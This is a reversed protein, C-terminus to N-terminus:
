CAHSASASMTDVMTIVEERADNAEQFTAYWMPIFPPDQPRRQEHNLTLSGYGHLPEGSLVDYGYQTLLIEPVIMGSGPVPLVIPPLEADAWQQLNLLTRIHEQAESPSTFILVEGAFEAGLHLDAPLKDLQRWQEFQMVGEGLEVIAYRKLTAFQEYAVEWEYVNLIETAFQSWITVLVREELLAEIRHIYKKAYHRVDEFPVETGEITAHEQQDKGTWLRVTGIVSHGRSVGFQQNGFVRGFETSQQDRVYDFSQVEILHEIFRQHEDGDKKVVEFEAPDPTPTDLAQYSINIVHLARKIDKSAYGHTQCWESFTTGQRLKSLAYGKKTRKGFLRIASAVINYRTLHDSGLVVLEDNNKDWKNRYTLFFLEPAAFATCIIRLLDHDDKDQASLAMEGWCTPMPLRILRKGLETLQPINDQFTIAGRFVLRNFTREYAPADLGGILDLDQAYIGLDASTLALIELNGDLVFSPTATTITTPNLKRDTLIHVRGNKARGRVRGIMQVLTIDDLTNQSLRPYGNVITTRFQQDCIVVTDLGPINLSSAGAATMFLLFPREAGELFPQLVSSESGGHYFSVTLGETSSFKKALLEADNRSSVFVAAGREEAVLTPCLETLYSNLQRTPGFTITAEREPDTAAYEIVTPTELYTAYVDKNVTASMWIFTCGVRKAVALALELHESTQHVEDCILLDDETLLGRRGWAVAIGPTMIIVRAAQNNKTGHEQTVLSITADAGFLQDCVHRIAVSKGSGTSSVIGFGERSLNNIAEEIEGSKERALLTEPVTDSTLLAHLNACTARTPAIIIARKFPTADM